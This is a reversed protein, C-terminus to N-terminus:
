KRHIKVLILLFLHPSFKKVNEDGTFVLIKGFHILKLLNIENKGSQNKTKAESILYNM